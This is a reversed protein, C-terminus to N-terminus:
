LYQDVGLRARARTSSLLEDILQQNESFGRKDAQEHWLHFVPAAFRASKHRIGAHILRITLDSDELGWRGAYSEDFGNIAILDHRWASLNCTKVGKWRQPTLRRFQGDPLRVLPLWRNIDRRTWAALWRPADWAHLPLRERLARATFRKSLLIRNGSLFYGREALRRHQAVFDYPPVCDGDTFILYEAETAALARNRMVTARYGRNEQWLHTVPFRATRRCNEVVQRVEDGSGDDAIIVGFDRDDQHLYGDLLARLVDARNYTAVVVAIRM